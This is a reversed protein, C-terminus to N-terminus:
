LIPRACHSNSNGKGHLMVDVKRVQSFKNTVLDAHECVLVGQSPQQEALTETERVEDEDAKTKLRVWEPGEYGALAALFSYVTRFGELPVRHLRMRGGGEGGAEILADSKRAVMVKVQV